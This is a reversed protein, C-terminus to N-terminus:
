TQSNQNSKPSWYVQAWAAQFASRPDSARASMSLIESLEDDVSWAASPTRAESVGSTVFHRFPTVSAQAVDPYKRLYWASDFLPNPNRGENMGFHVFHEWPNVKAKRVDPNAELYYDEDFLSRALEDRTLDLTGAVASRTTIRLRRLMTTPRRLQEAYRWRRSNIAMEYRALSQDARAEAAAQGAVAQDLAGQLSSLQRQLEDIRASLRPPAASPEAQEVRAELERERVALRDRDDEVAQARRLAMELESERVALRDRDEEVARADAVQALLTAASSHWRLQGLTVSKARRMEEKWSDPGGEYLSSAVAMQVEGELAVFREWLDDTTQIGLRRCLSEALEVLTSSDAVGKVVAPGRVVEHLTYYLSRFALVDTPWAEDWTFETDVFHWDDGQDIIFNRPLVDFQCTAPGEGTAIQQAENWWRGLTELLASSRVGHSALDRVILDEANTGIKVASDTQLFHLHGSEISELGCLARLRWGESAQELVRSSRWAKDRRPVGLWLSGENVRELVGDGPGCVVLFSNAMDLGFGADLASQFTALPDSNLKSTGADSTVPRRVFQKILQPGELHGFLAEEVLVTPTKYDPYAAYWKQEVLGHETLLQGLEQHSWTQIGSQDRWYGEMGIWPRGLHDEPYGLIYKLGWRNEIALAIVGNPSLLSRLSSLMRQPGEEGGIGAGAYELVGCVIIVDFEAPADEPRNCVYEELTGCMVAANRMGALRAAAVEARPMSGELGVVDCGSEAIKRTLAGTGCGVDLVTLGEELRLPLLLNERQPSLHYQSGWDRIHQALEDSGSSRDRSSRMLRLLEAETGDTYTVGKGLVHVQHSQPARSHIRQGFTEVIPYYPVTRAQNM